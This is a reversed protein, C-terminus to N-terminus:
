CVWIKWFTEFGNLFFVSTPRGHLFELITDPGPTGTWNRNNRHGKRDLPKWCLVPVGPPWQVERGPGQAWYSRVPSNPSSPGLCSCLGLFFWSLRLRLLPAGIGIYKCTPNMFICKQLPACTFCTFCDIVVLIRGVLQECYTQFLPFRDPLFSRPSSGAPIPMSM